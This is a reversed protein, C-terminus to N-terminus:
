LWQRSLKRILEKLSKSPDNATLSIGHDEAFWQLHLKLGDMLEEPSMTQIGCLDLYLVPRNEAEFDWKECIYLGKFLERDGSFLEETSCILSKGFRRPRSLFHYKNAKNSLFEDLIIKTKDVYVMNELRIDCFDFSSLPIRKFLDDWNEKASHMSPSPPVSLPINSIAMSTERLARSDQASGSEPPRYSATAVDATTQEHRARKFQPEESRLASSTAAVQIQHASGHEEAATQTVAPAVAEQAVVSAVAESLAPHPDIWESKKTVIHM